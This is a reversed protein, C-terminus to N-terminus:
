RLKVDLMNRPRPRAAAVRRDGLERSINAESAVAGLNSRSASLGRRRM